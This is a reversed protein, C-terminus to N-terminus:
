LTDLLWFLWTWYYGPEVCRENFEEQSEGIERGWLPIYCRTPGPEKVTRKGLEGLLDIQLLSVVRQGDVLTWLM